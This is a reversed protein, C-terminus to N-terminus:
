RPSYQNKSNVVKLQMNHEGSVMRKLWLNSVYHRFKKRQTPAKNYNVYQSNIEKTYGNPATIFMQRRANTFEGRDDTIDWFQNFRYKQEVKSYMIDISTPNIKPYKLMDTPDNKTKLNLRLEGSMQETNYVVAKDFNFDLVHNKDVDNIWKFVEMQYEISKLTNVQQGTPTVLEVEFPYDIGYFNCYSNHNGSHEWIGKNAISMFNNKSPILFNPHWDHFSIWAKAKPDYSITWSANNFYRPDGLKIQGGGTVIFNDDDVYEVKGIWEPNLKFDRKTFYVIGNSNDYISQCGVGIVTNDILEFNPFDEIIKYPLFEEFWWKMGEQSIETLNNAYNFVKGQNQSVWFLGAPTNVVSLRDQCSGYEYSSDANVLNQLPQSFLGGDGITIKTGGDTQLTDVGPIIAPAENEFLMMAGNKGIPKITTVRSTFDKYNNVLYLLWNDYRLEKNQPLSYIVRNPYYSYCKEAVFPDYNRYQSTGWNSFGQYYRSAQLSYDYKFFNGAKIRDSRFMNILDIYLRPDYHRQEEDDGWDRYEVNTESEVIFDRVGNNFLYMYADKIIIKIIESPDLSPFLGTTSFLGTTDFNHWSSPLIGTATPSANFIMGFLGAIFDSVQFDHTDMWYTPYPMMKRLRYDYEFADPLDLMWDSFFFFSNKETYRGIYTDGGFIVESTANPPNTLDTTWKQMCSSTPVQKIGDVQGYQNRLRQKLGAYYSSARGADENGTKGQKVAKGVNKSDVGAFAKGFTVRSTDDIPTPIIDRNLTIGVCSSRYLNNLTIGGFEQLRDSIYSANTIGARINTQGSRSDYFCHSNYQLAYQHSRSFAKVLEIFSQTGESWYAIFVPVAQSIRLPLPLGTSGNTEYELTTDVDVNPFASAALAGTYTASGPITGDGALGGAILLLSDAGTVTALQQTTLLANYTSAASAAAAITALNATLHAGGPLTAGGPAPSGVAWDSAVLNYDVQANSRKTKTSGQMAKLAIGFGVIGALIFTLDTVLKHEPHEYPEEFKGDVYGSHNEYIRLEKASLFPHKFQTDPSHFTFKDKQTYKEGSLPYKNAKDGTTFGSANLFPDPRTDNYPYNQYYARGGGDERDYAQMNNILGKAVITKNGERSGRLIEYGAIGPIPNNQNDVPFPINNFEVGLVNVVGGSGFHPSTLSDPMKHHRIPKGCLDGWVVPNKDPYVESSEWFGMDGKNIVKGGNPLVTLVPTGGQQPTANATNFEEFLFGTGGYAPSGVQNQEPTLQSPAPNLQFGRPARGPIHYSETKDNTTYIWRIFFSYVEDRLYGVSTGGNRYYDAPYETSVWQTKIKNALPQYNFSFRTVPAVRILYEGNRYVGGSREYAPRDLPILQLPVTILTADIKDLSIRNTHTSYIGIKRAVLQQNVFGIVVLEFEDYTQDIDEIVIDISGNVNRHDFMSMINSPISYDSIRQENETYAIVAQYTGNLLEGGNLGQEMKLCPQITIRAMRLRECDLVTSDITNNCPPTNNPDPIQIYPPADMNMSRDPNLNDAWYVQWTCDFNEKAQGGLIPNTKKFELCIDNVVTDYSCLSEDFRGIESNVDDTSFIAWEDGFLHIVGIVTYPALVCLKNSQENGLVGLDGSRSNNVANRAALYTGEPMLSENVDKTMGKQFSRTEVSSTDQPRQKKAM